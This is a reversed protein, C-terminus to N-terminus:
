EEEGQPVDAPRTYGEPIALDQNEDRWIMSTFWWRNGDSLMQVFTVGRRYPEHETPTHRAEYTGIVSAINGYREIHHIFGTEFFDQQSLFRDLRQFYAEIDLASPPATGCVISSPILSAGPVFLSRMRDWDRKESAFGSIVEYFSQLVSEISSTDTMPDGENM